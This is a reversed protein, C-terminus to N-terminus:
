TLYSCHIVHYELGVLLRADPDRYRAADRALVSCISLAFFPPRKLTDALGVVQLTTGSAQNEQQRQQKREIEERGKTEDRRRGHWQSKQEPEGTEEGGVKEALFLRDRRLQIDSPVSGFDSEDDMLDESTDSTEVDTLARGSHHHKNNNNDDNDNNNNKKKNQHLKPNPLFPINQVGQAAELVVAPISESGSSVADLTNRLEVDVVRGYDGNWDSKAWERTHIPWYVLKINSTPLGYIVVIGTRDLARLISVLKTHLRPYVIAAFQPNSPHWCNVEKCIIDFVTELSGTTHHSASPLSSPTHTRTMATTTNSPTLQYYSALQHM